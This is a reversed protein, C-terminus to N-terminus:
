ADEGLEVPAGIKLQEVVHAALDAHGAHVLQATKYAVVRNVPEEWSSGSNPSLLL